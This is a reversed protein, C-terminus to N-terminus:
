SFLTNNLYANRFKHEPDYDQVLEKWKSLESIRSQLIAPAMTFLKGWHPRVNYLALASEIQPLLKNVAETHPKWTFHMAVTAQKYFPSMWFQDEAVTRIESIFLHPAIIDNMKEIARMADYAHELPVFYESQLEDGSSPTFAMKFHPLREYWPGPNGMQETCSEAPHDDIPHMNRDARVAAHITQPLAQIESSTGKVWIQNVNKNRWDTFLSVSYGAGIIEEFHNELATIPLNRFIIQQLEMSPLLDLEVETIIGLAGLGVVTGAFAEHARDIQAISGDAKVLTLKKIAAALCSNQLGSGHTATACAGAISIHPLSALNQLAYGAEHISECVDGYRIGAGVSISNETTNILGTDKLARTSILGSRSDAIKSFSHRSGLARLSKSSRVLEAVEGTTKPFYINSTSYKLNGAWNELAQNTKCGSWPSVMIGGGLIAGAKLFNRKKVMLFTLQHYYVFRGRVYTSESRAFRNIAVNNRQLENLNSERFFVNFDTETMNDM